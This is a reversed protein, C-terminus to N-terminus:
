FLEPLLISCLRSRPGSETDDALGDLEERHGKHVWKNSRKSGGLDRPTVAEEHAGVPQFCSDESAIDSSQLEVDIYANRNETM